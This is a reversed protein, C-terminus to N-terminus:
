RIKQLRGMNEDFEGREIFDKREREAKKIEKPPTKQTQKRFLHLLVLTNGRFCFFIIRNNGPRLEWIDGKLHKVISSPLRTGYRKLLEVCYVIQNLQIRAEKNKVSKETLAILFESLESYDNKDSYFVIDYMSQYAGEKM